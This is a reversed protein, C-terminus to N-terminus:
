EDEPEPPRASRKKQKAFPLDGSYPTDTDPHHFKAPKEAFDEMPRRYVAEFLQAPTLLAADAAIEWKTKGYELAGQFDDVDFDDSEEFTEEIQQLAVAQAQYMRAQELLERLTNPARDVNVPVEMPTPDPWEFRIAPDVRDAKSVPTSKKWRKQAEEILKDIEM